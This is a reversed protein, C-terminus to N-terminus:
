DMAIPTPTSALGTSQQFEREPFGEPFNEVLPSRTQATSEATPDAILTFLEWLPTM